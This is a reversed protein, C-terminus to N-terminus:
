QRIVGLLEDAYLARAPNEEPKLRPQMERRVVGARSVGM